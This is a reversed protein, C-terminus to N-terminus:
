RLGGAQSEVRHGNVRSATEERTLTDLITAAMAPSVSIRAALDAPTIPRGMTQLYNNAAFRALAL